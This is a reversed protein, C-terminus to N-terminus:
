ALADRAIWDCAEALRAGDANLTLARVQVARALRGLVEFEQARMRRDVLRKGYTNAVLQSLVAQGPLERAACSTTMPEREQLLYIAGLPAPAAHFRAAGELPLYGKDWNPTLKPLASRRGPLLPESDQWLRIRPYGPRVTFADDAADLCAVDETLVAHGLSAFAAALTSKGSGAPGVFAVCRGSLVVASGHLCVQGCLRLYFGLVPGLLYTATDELTLADPWSACITAHPLDLYFRTDDAYRLAHRGPGHMRHHLALGAHGEVDAAWAPTEGFHIALSALEAKGQPRAPLGPIAHNSSLTVGYADSIYRAAPRARLHV